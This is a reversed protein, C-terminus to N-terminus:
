QLVGYSEISYETNKITISCQLVVYFGGIKRVWEFPASWHHTVM